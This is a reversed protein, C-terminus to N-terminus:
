VSAWLDRVADGDPLYVKQGIMQSLRPRRGAKIEETLVGLLRERNEVIEAEPTWVRLSRGPDGALYQALVRNVPRDGFGYGAVIVESCTSIEAALQAYYHSFPPKSVAQSKKDGLIVLPTGFDDSGASWSDLVGLDRVEDTKRKRVTGDADQYWTLAGHLPYLGMNGAWRDMPLGLSEYPMGDYIWREDQELLASLLLSDYNLTYVVTDGAGHGHWERLAEAFDNIKDWREQRTDDDAGAELVLADIERLSMGVIRRYLARLEQSAERLGQVIDSTSTLLPEIALVAASMRDVAGALKEFNEEHQDVPLATDESHAFRVLELLADALGAGELRDWIRRTIEPMRFDDNFGRSLGNGVIMLKRTTM